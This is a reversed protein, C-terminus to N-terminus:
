VFSAFSLQQLRDLSPWLIPSPQLAFNHTHLPRHLLGTAASAPAAVRPPARAGPM